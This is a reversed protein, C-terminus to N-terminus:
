AAKLPLAHLMIWSNGKGSPKQVINIEFQEPDSRLADLLSQQSPQIFYWKRNLITELTHQSCRVYWLQATYQKGQSNLLPFEKRNGSAEFILKRWRKIVEIAELVQEGNDDITRLPIAQAYIKDTHKTDRYGLIRDLLEESKGTTILNMKSCIDQLQVLSKQHLMLFQEIQNQTNM